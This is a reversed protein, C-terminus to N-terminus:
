SHYFNIVNSREQENPVWRLIQQPKYIEAAAKRTRPERSFIMLTLLDEFTSLTNRNMKLASWGKRAREPYFLTNFEVNIFDLLILWGETFDAPDRKMVKRIAEYLMKQADAATEETLYHPNATMAVKYEELKAKLLVDDMSVEPTTDLDKLLATESFSSNLGLRQRLQDVLEDKTFRSDIDGLLAARLARYPWHAVPSNNRTEDELLLGDATMAPRVGNLVYEKAAAAPWNGPLKWRRYIETIILEEDCGRPTKVLGELWDELASGEWERTKSTRRIDIPLNGRKTLDPYKGTKSYLVLYEEPWSAIASDPLKGTLQARLDTVEVVPAEEVDAEVSDDDPGQVDADDSAADDDAGVVVEVGGENVLEPEAPDLIVGGDATADDESEDGDSDPVDDPFVDADAGQDDGLDLDLGGGSPEGLELSHSETDAGTVSDLTEDLPQESVGEELQEAADEIGPETGVDGLTVDIEPNANNNGTNRNKKGM